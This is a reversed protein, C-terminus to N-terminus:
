LSNCGKWLRKLLAKGFDGVRKNPKKNFKFYEGRRLVDRSDM